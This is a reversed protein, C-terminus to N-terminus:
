GGTHERTSPAFGAADLVVSEGPRHEVVPVRCGQVINVQFILEGYSNGCLQIKFRSFLINRCIKMKLDLCNGYLLDFHPVIFFDWFLCVTQTVRLAIKCM